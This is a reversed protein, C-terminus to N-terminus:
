KGELAREFAILEDAESQSVDIGRMRFSEIFSEASAGKGDARRIAEYGYYPYPQTGIQRGINQRAPFQSAEAKSLDALIEQQKQAILRVKYMDATLAFSLAKRGNELKIMSTGDVETDYVKKRIDVMEENLAELREVDFASVNYGVKDARTKLKAAYDKVQDQVQAYTPSQMIADRPIVGSQKKDQWDQTWKRQKEQELRHQRLAPNKAELAANKADNMPASIAKIRADIEKLRAYDADNPLPQQTNLPGGQTLWTNYAETQTRNQIRDKEANLAIAEEIENSLIAVGSQKSLQIMSKRIRDAKELSELPAKIAKIQQDVQFMRQIVHKPIANMISTQSSEASIPQGANQAGMFVKVMDNQFKQKEIELQTLQEIESDSLSVNHTASLKKMREKLYKVQNASRVKMQLEQLRSNVELMHSRNIEPPAGRTAPDQTNWATYKKQGELNSKMQAQQLTILEEIEEKSITKPDLNEYQKRINALQIKTNLEQLREGMEQARPSQIMQPQAGRINADQSYWARMQKQYAQSIKSQEKQLALMEEIEAESIYKPDLNKYRKRQNAIHAKINLDQLRANLEQTRPSQIMQPQEGRIVPDQAFWASMEKQFEQSIKSQEEQLEILEDIEAQTIDRSDLGKFRENFRSDDITTIGSLSRKQIRASDQHESLPKPSVTNFTESKSTQSTSSKTSSREPTSVTGADNQPGEGCASLMIATFFLTTLYYSRM